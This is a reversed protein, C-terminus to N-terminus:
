SGKLNEQTRIGDLFIEMVTNATEELSYQADELIWRTVIGEISCFLMTAATSVDVDERIIGEDIGEKLVDGILKIYDLTRDLSSDEFFKSSHRFEILLLETLERNTEILQMQITIMRHLKEFAGKEKEVETRVYSVLEAMQEDFITILLEEKSDFYLYVTGHAIGAEKAIDSVRANYYGDHAFIKTAARIIQQRKDSESNM